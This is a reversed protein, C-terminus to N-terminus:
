RNFTEVQTMVHEVMKDCRSLHFHLIDEKKYFESLSEKLLVKARNLRVKVNVASIDLYAQTEAVNMDEIERMVFVTRYKEPLRRIAEELAPKLEANLMKAAPTQVEIKHQQYIEKDMTDDNM